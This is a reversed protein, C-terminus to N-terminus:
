EFNLYLTITNTTLKQLSNNYITGADANYYPQHLNALGRSYRIEPAFKFYPYFMDLGVGYELTLDYSNLQLVEPDNKKQGGVV